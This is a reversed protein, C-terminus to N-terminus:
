SLLGAWFPIRSFYFVPLFFHKWGLYKTAYQFAEKIFEAQHAICVSQSVSQSVHIDNMTAQFFHVPFTHTHNTPQNTPQNTPPPSPLHGQWNEQLVGDGVRGPASHYINDREDQLWSVASGHFCVTVGSSGSSTCMRSEYQLEDRTESVAGVSRKRWTLPFCASLHLLPTAPRPVPVAVLASSTQSTQHRLYNRMRQPFIFIERVPNSNEHAQPWHYQNSFVFKPLHTGMRTRCRCRFAVCFALIRARFIHSTSAVMLKACLLPLANKGARAFPSLIFGGNGSFSLTNVNKIM